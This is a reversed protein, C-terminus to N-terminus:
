RQKRHIGKLWERSGIAVFVADEDADTVPMAMVAETCVGGVYIRERMIGANRLSKRTMAVLDAGRKRPSATSCLYVAGDPTLKIAGIVISLVRTRDEDSSDQGYRIYFPGDAFINASAFSAMALAAFIIALTRPMSM